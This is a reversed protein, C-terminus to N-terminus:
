TVFAGVGGTETVDRETEEKRNKALFFFYHVSCSKSTVAM